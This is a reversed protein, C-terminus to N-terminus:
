SFAPNMATESSISNAQYDLKVSLFFNCRLLRKKVTKVFHPVMKRWRLTETDSALPEYDVPKLVEKMFQGVNDLIDNM